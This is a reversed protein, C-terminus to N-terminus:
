RSCSCLFKQADDYVQCLSSSWGFPLDKDRGFSVRASMRPAFNGSGRALTDALSWREVNGLRPRRLSRTSSTLVTFPPLFGQVSKTQPCDVRSSSLWLKISRREPTTSPRKLGDHKTKVFNAASVSSSSLNNLEESNWSRQHFPPLVHLLRMHIDTRGRIIQSVYSVAKLSAASEEVAILFKEIRNTVTALEQEAVGEIVWGKATSVEELRFVRATCPIVCSFATFTHRIWEVDTVIAIRNGRFLHEMGLKFDEWLARPEVGAFNPDIQFYLRVKQYDALTQAVTPPLVHENDETTVQNKCAFGIVTPPFGNLVEIM